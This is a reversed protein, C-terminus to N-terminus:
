QASQINISFVTKANEHQYEM